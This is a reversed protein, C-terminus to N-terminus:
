VGIPFRAIQMFHAHTEEHLMSNGQKGAAPLHDGAGLVAFIASTSSSHVDMWGDIWRDMWGNMRGDTSEDMWDGIWRGGMM